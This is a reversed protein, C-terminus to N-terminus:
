DRLRLRKERSDKFIHRIKEFDKRELNEILDKLTKEFEVLAEKIKIDNEKLIDLWLNYDSKSIRTTDKFGSGFFSLNDEKVSVYSLLYAIIQPLHSTFALIEDHKEPDIIIPSANIKEIIRRLGEVKEESVEFAPCLFYVKGTFLNDVAGLPGSVERGALPHGGIFLKRLFEDRNMYNMIKFKTSATDTIIVKESVYNKLNEVVDVVGSPYVSIFIYDSEGILDRLRTIDKGLVDLIKRESLYDLVKNDKDVGWLYVNKFEKKFSLALSTGILGLGIIGIIM